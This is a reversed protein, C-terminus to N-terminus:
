KSLNGPLAKVCEQEFNFTSSILKYRWTLNALTSIMQSYCIRSHKYKTSKIRLAHLGKSNINIIYQILKPDPISKWNWEWFIKDFHKENTRKDNSQTGQISWTFNMIKNISISIVQSDRLLKRQIYEYSKEKVLIAFLWTSNVTTVM